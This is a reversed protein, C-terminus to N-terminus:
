PTDVFYNEANCKQLLQCPKSENVCAMGFFLTKKRVTVMETCWVIGPAFSLFPALHRDGLNIENHSGGSAQGLTSASYVKTAYWKTASQCDGKPHVYRLVPNWM